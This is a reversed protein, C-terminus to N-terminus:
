VRMGNEVGVEATNKNEEPEAQPVLATSDV